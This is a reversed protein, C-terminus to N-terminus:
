RGMMRQWWTRSKPPAKLPTSQQLAPPRPLRGDDRVTPPVWGTEGAAQRIPEGAAGTNAGAFNDRFPPPQDNGIRPPRTGQPAGRQPGAAVQALDLAPYGPPTPMAWTKAAIDTPNIEIEGLTMTLGFGFQPWDLKIEHPMAIGHATEARYDKLDARAVLKNSADYLEHATITGRCSDVLTVRRVRRGDPLQRDAVLRLPGREEDPPDMKLEAEDLSVVGLVETVWQPDFPLARVNGIQDHRVTFVNPPGRRMWFWSREPNSGLDAEPNGLASVMLRFNRPQEVAIRASLRLGIIAGQGHPVIKVDTSRWSRLPTINTNLHEVIEHLNSNPSLVCPQQRDSLLSLFNGNFACGTLTALIACVAVCARLQSCRPQKGSFLAM